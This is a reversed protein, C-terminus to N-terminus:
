YSLDFEVRRNNQRGVSTDNTDVPVRSGFGKVVIRGSRIKNDVLYQKASQARAKSLAVNKDADGQNDTHGSISLKYAPYKKMLGAVKDLSARSSAKLVASGTEFEVAKVATDLIKQEVEDIKVEPCGKNSALGPRNPCRDENDYVGDGDSDAPCGDNASIGALQPCKDIGNHIGDGDNDAPCGNSAVTGAYQPCKDKTDYIGDGDSDAPCGKNAAIGALLPCQDKDDKIGDGDSDEIVVPIEAEALKPIDPTGNNFFLWWFLLGFFALVGLAIYFDNREKKDGLNFPDNNM